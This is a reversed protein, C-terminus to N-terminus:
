FSLFFSFFFVRIALAWIVPGVCPSFFGREESFLAFRFVLEERVRGRVPVVIDLDADRARAVDHRPAGHQAARQRRQAPDEAHGTHANGLYGLRHQVLGDAAERAIRQLIRIQDPQALFRSSQSPPPTTKRSLFPLPLSM